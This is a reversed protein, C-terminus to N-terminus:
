VLGIRGPWLCKKNCMALTALDVRFGSTLRCHGAPEATPERWLWHTSCRPTPGRRSPPSSETTSFLEGAAADAAARGTPRVHDGYPGTTMDCYLLADTLLPAPRSIRWSSPALAAFTRRSKLARTTLWWARSQGTLVPLEVGQLDAFVLVAVRVRVQLQLMVVVRFHGGTVRVMVSTV